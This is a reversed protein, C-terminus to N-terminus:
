WAPGKSAGHGPGPLAGGHLLAVLADRVLHIRNQGRSAWGGGLERMEGGWACEGQKWLTVGGAEEGGRRGAGYLHHVARSLWRKRKGDWRMVGEWREDSGGLGEWVM